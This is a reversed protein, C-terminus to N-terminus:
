QGLSLGKQDSEGDGPGDFVDTRGKLDTVAGSQRQGANKEFLALAASQPSATLLSSAWRIAALTAL